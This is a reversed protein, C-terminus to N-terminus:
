YDPLPRSSVQTTLMPKVYNRGYADFQVPGAFVCARLEIWCVYPCICTSVKGYFTSFQAARLVAAVQTQNRPNAARAIAM